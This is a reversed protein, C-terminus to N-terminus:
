DNGNNNYNFAPMNSLSKKTANKLVISYDQQHGNGGNNGGATAGGGNNDTSPKFTLHSFPVEVLRNGIGIFGGVSIIAKEAKGSSNLLLNNITGINQGQANYVTAGDIARARWMGHTKVLSGSPGNDNGTNGNDNGNVGATNTMTNNTNAANNDTNQAFAPMALAGALVTALGANRIISHM